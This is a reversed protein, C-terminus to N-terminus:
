PLKNIIGALNERSFARLTKTRVSGGLGTKLLFTMMVEDSPAEFIAVYDYEGMVAYFGVLSGGMAKIDNASQQIRQPANKIQSVGQDTLNALIIYTQM